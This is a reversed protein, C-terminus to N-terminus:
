KFESQLEDDKISSIANYFNNKNIPKRNTQQLKGNYIDPFMDEISKSVPKKPKQMESEKQLNYFTRLNDSDLENAANRIYELACNRSDLEEPSSLYSSYSNYSPNRIADQIVKDKTLVPEKGQMYFQCRHESEHIVTELIKFPLYEDKKDKLNDALSLLNKNIAISGKNPNYEGFVINKNNLTLDQLEVACSSVGKSKLFDNATAQLLAAIQKQSLSYFKDPEFFSLLENRSLNDLNSTDISQSKTPFYDKNLTKNFAFISYEKFKNGLQEKVFKYEEENACSNKLEKSISETQKQEDVSLNELRKKLKEKLENILKQLKNKQKSNKCNKLNYTLIDILDNSIEKEESISISNSGSDDSGDTDDSDIYIKLNKEIAKLEADSLSSSKKSINKLDSYILYMDIFEKNM